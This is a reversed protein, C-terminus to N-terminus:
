RCSADASMMLSRNNKHQGCEELNPPDLVVNTCVCCVLTADPEDVFWDIPLETLVFHDEDVYLEAAPRIADLEVFLAPKTAKRDKAQRASPRTPGAAINV